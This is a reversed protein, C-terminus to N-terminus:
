LRLRLKFAVHCGERFRERLGLLVMLEKCSEHDWTYFEMANIVIM